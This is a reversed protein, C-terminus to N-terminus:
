VEEGFLFAYQKRAIELKITKNRIKVGLEVDKAVFAAADFDNAVILSMSNSPSLDLMNEREREMKRIAVSLDEISRKYLLQIDEAIAKARDEKIHKNNRVLSQVFAGDNKLIDEPM